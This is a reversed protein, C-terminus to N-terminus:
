AAAAKEAAKKSFLDLLMNLVDMLSGDQVFPEAIAIFKEAWAIAQNDVDTPTLVAIFHGAKVMKKFFELVKQAQAQNVASLEASVESM